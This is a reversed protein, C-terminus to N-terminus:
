KTTGSLIDTLCSKLDTSRYHIYPQDSGQKAWEHDHELWITQMGLQAAPELNVAMDEIMVSRAPNIGAQAVFLEYPRMAPKPEHEAQIIDFIVDFHHRLGFAGLINDAHAVTGNTFIHKRGPLEALLEDLAVDHSVDSLDIDHVYALFGDPAMNFEHMLGHMTTGYERFLRTKLTAAEDQSITFHDALYDTMKQAVRAFLNSAAPYITNDLDFVWDDIADPMLDDKLSFVANM